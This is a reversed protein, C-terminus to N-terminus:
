YISSFELKLSIFEDGKGAEHFNMVDYCSLEKEQFIKEGYPGFETERGTRHM